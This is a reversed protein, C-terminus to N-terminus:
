DRDDTVCWPAILILLVTFVIVGIAIVFENM